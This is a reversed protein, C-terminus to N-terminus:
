SDGLSALTRLAATMHKEVASKSIGLSEAVEGYSLGEVKHMVFVRRRQPPFENVVRMVEALRRKFEWAHEPSPSAVAPDSASGGDGVQIAFYADERALGRRRARVRDLLVNTGLKYLFASPNEIAAGDLGAIKVFIDQVIDEAEAASGTRVTFFRVLNQRKALYAALLANTEEGDAM